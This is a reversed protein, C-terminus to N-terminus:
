HLHIIHPHPTCIYHLSMTHSCYTYIIYPYPVHVRHTSMTHLCHTPSGCISMTHLGQIHVYCTSFPHLCVVPTPTTDLASVQHLCQTFVHHVLGANTAPRPLHFHLSSLTHLRHTHPYPSHDPTDMHDVCTHRRRPEPSASAASVTDAAAAAAYFCLSCCWCRQLNMGLM